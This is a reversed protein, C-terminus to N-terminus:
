MAKVVEETIDVGGLVVVNKHVVVSLGKKDAVKKIAANIANIVPTMLENERNMLRTQLQQGFKQKEQDSMSKAKNQFDKEAAMVENKMTNRVNNINPSSTVLRQFDVVGIASNAAAEAVNAGGFGSQMMSLAFCGVVFLGSVFLSLVRVMRPSGFKEMM